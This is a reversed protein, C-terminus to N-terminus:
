EAVQLKPSLQKEAGLKASISYREYARAYWDFVPKLKVPKAKKQALLMQRPTSPKKAMPDTRLRSHTFMEEILTHLWRRDVINEKTKYLM